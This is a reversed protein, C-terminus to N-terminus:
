LGPDSPPSGKTVVSPDGERRAATGCFVAASSVCTKLSSGCPEGTAEMKSQSNSFAVGAEAFPLRGSEQSSVEWATVLAPPHIVTGRRALLVRHAQPDQTVLPVERVQLDQHDRAALEVKEQLDQTSPPSSVDSFRREYFCPTSAAKGPRSFM